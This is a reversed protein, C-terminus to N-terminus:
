GDPNTEKFRKLMDIAIKMDEPRVDRAADFLARLNPDDHAEQALRATDDSFYWKTGDVSEYAPHNGTELYEMSVGYHAAIAELKDRKPTYRGARWDTLTSPRCGIARAVDSFTENNQKMLAEFVAYM